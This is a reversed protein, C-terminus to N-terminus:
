SKEREMPTVLVTAQMSSVTVDSSTTPAAPVTAAETAEGATVVSTPLGILGTGGDEGGGGGGRGVVLEEDDEEEDDDEDEAANSIM